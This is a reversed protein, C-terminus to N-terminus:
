HVGSQPRRGGILLTEGQVRKKELRKPFTGFIEITQFGWIMTYAIKNPDHDDGFRTM